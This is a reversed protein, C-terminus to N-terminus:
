EKDSSRAFLLGRVGVVLWRGPMEVTGREFYREDTLNAGKIFVEIPYRQLAHSVRADLRIYSAQGNRDNHSLAASWRVPWRGWSEARVLARQKLYDFVYASQGEPEDGAADLYAYSATVTLGRRRDNRTFRRASAIEVGQTNVRRLNVARYLEDGPALVFDILDRGRREFVTLSVRSRDHVWDYGLEYAWSHEPELDPNGSTAPDLYYLETFSPVRYASAVSSRIRGPGLMRSVALSPHVEWDNDAHDAALALRWHWAHSGGVLSSFLGWRRRDRRGLNTSDLDEELWGLGVQM